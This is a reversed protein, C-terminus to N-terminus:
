NYCVMDAFKKIQNIIKIKETEDEYFNTSVDITLVKIGLKKNEEMWKEHHTHINDLYHIPINCEEKRSRKKIREFCINPSTKLYIFYKPTINFKKCLWDHWNKYIDYELKTMKGDIYCNEAFCKRDTFVSREIFRVNGKTEEIKKIRSIFSNMQFAFSWRESNQYFKDLINKGDSDCTKVWEDVPEYVVPYNLEEELLKLFTSKGVGINGEIYIESM